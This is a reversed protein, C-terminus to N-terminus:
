FKNGESVLDGFFPVNEGPVLKKAARQKTMYDGGYQGYQMLFIALWFWFAYLCDRLDSFNLKSTGKITPWSINIM